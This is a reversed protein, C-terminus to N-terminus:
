DCYNTTRITQSATSKDAAEKLKKLVPCYTKHTFWHIRQCNVSCYAVSKCQQCLKLQVSRDFELCTGCTECPEKGVRNTTLFGNIANNLIYMATPSQGVPVQSIQRVTHRWLNSEQHPFSTLAQRLFKEQGVPLGHPDGGRLFNKILYKLPEVISHSSKSNDKVERPKEFYKGAQRICCALLHFKLSLAEHTQHCTFYKNCLDELVTVVSHWSELISGKTINSQHRHKEFEVNLSLLVKVPTINLQLFITYLPIVLESPIVQKVAYVNVEEMEFFNSIFAVVNHNGVFAAMQAATRGIKNVYNTQAGNKLLLEIIDLNGSLGAFMLATYGQKHGQYNVNAGSKVLYEVMNYSNRFCANQLPSLGEEDTCNVLDKRQSLLLKVKEINDEFVASQFESASCQTM